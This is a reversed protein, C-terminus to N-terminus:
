MSKRTYHMSKIDHIRRLEIDIIMLIGCDVHKHMILLHSVASYKKKLTNKNEGNVKSAIKKANIILVQSMYVCNNLM